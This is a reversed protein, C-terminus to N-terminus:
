QLYFDYIRVQMDKSSSGGKLLVCPYYNGSISSPIKVSIISDKLHEIDSAKISEIGDPIELVGNKVIFDAM